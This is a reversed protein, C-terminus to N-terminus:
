YGWKAYLCSKDHATITASTAGNQDGPLGQNMVASPLGSITHRDINTGKKPHCLKLAHGVEHIFTMRAAGAADSAMNFYDPNTNMIIQVYSWNANVEYGDNDNGLPLGDSGYPITKGLLGNNYYKGVITMDTDVSM